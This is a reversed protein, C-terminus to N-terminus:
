PVGVNALQARGEDTLALVAAWKGSPNRRREGTPKVLGLNRLESFRPQLSERTGGAATIAELVTASGLAAIAEMAKRRLNALRPQIAEAAEQSTGDRGKSGPLVPYTCALNNAQRITISPVDSGLSAGAKRSPNKQQCDM